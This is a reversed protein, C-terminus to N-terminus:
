CVYYLYKAEEHSQQYDQQQQQQQDEELLVVHHRYQSDNLYKSFNTTSISPVVQLPPVLQFNTLYTSKNPVINNLYYSNINKFSSKTSQITNKNVNIEEYERQQQFYIQKNPDTLHTDETRHSSSSSSSLSRSRPSSNTSLTQIRTFYELETKVNLWKLRFYKVIFYFVFFLIILFIISCIIFLIFNKQDIDNTTYKVLSSLNAKEKVLKEQTKTFYNYKALCRTHKRYTKLLLEQLNLDIENINDFILPLKPPPELTFKPPEGLLRCKICNEIYKILM